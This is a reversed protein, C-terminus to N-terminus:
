KWAIGGVILTGSSGAANLCYVYVGKGLKWTWVAGPTVAFSNSITLGSASYGCYVNVTGNNQTTIEARNYISGLATVAAANFVTDIRTIVSSSVTVASTSATSTVVGSNDNSNPALELVYSPSAAKTALAFVGVMAFALMIKKM